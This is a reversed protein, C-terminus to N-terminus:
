TSSYMGSRRVHTLGVLDPTGYAGLTDTNENKVASPLWHVFGLFMSSLSPLMAM